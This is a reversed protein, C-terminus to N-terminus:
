NKNSGVDDSRVAYLALFDGEDAPHFSTSERHGSQLFCYEFNSPLNLSTYSTAPTCVNCKGCLDVGLHSYSSAYM